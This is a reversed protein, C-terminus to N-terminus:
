NMLAIYLNLYTALILWLIYPVFLAAVNRNIKSARWIYLWVFYDLLLINILGLFPTKMKFFAISWTFNLLLQIFFPGSLYNFKKPPLYWAIGFSVGMCIYILGWAIPFVYDPPTISSKNLYLYWGDISDAQFFSASFGVSLCVLISVLISWFYKM